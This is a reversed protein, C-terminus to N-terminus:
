STIYRFGSGEVVVSVFLSHSQSTASAKTPDSKVKELFDFGSMDHLGLDLVVCDYHKTSKLEELAKEASDVATIEVDEHAILEVIASRQAEDDEVVLLHKPIDEIFNSIRAFAEDLADKSCLVMMDNLKGIEDPLKDSDGRSVYQIPEGCLYGTKFSVIENAHNEVIKNCIEPRITKVRDLIDQDGKYEDYLTSIDISNQSHILFTESLVKVINEPTIETEDRLIKTRGFQM